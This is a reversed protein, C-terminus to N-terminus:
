GHVADRVDIPLARVMGEFSMNTLAIATLKRAPDVFWRGGYALVVTGVVRRTGIARGAVGDLRALAAGKIALSM